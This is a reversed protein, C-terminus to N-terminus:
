QAPPPAPAAMPDLEMASPPPPAGAGPGEPGGNWRQGNRERRGDAGPAGERRNHRATHLKTWQDPTLVARLSLLMKADAKELNARMDAIRSIQELARGQDLPNADLLPELKLQEEELSAHLQILQLRSDLFIQDLHKQQDPTLGLLTVMDPNKWWTGPPLISMGHGGPGEPGRGHMGSPGGPIPGGPGQSFALPTALLLTCAFSLARNRTM